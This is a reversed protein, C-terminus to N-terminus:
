YSQITLVRDLDPYVVDNFFNWIWLNRESEIMQQSTTVGINGSRNLTYNRTHTDTGSDTYKQTGTDETARSVDTKTTGTTNITDTDIDTDTIDYKVETSGSNTTVSNGTATESLSTNPVLTDSNFGSISNNSVNSLNPTTTETLDPTTTETGGKTHTRDIIHEEKTNPTVVDNGTLTSTLNDARTEEKGYDITTIDDKMVETMSYNEIPNYDFNLTEWLKSWNVGYITYAHAALEKMNQYTMPLFYGMLPSIQKCGSHNYYYMSNLITESIANKWPVDLDNLYTFIGQSQPTGYNEFTEILRM